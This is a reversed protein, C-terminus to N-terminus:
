LRGRPAAARRGEVEITGTRLSTGQVVVIGGGEDDKRVVLEESAAPAPIVRIAKRGEYTVADVVVNHPQLGTTSNLAFRQGASTNPMSVALAAVFVIAAGFCSASDRGTEV